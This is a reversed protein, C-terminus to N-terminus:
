IIWCCHQYTGVCNCAAHLSTATHGICQLLRAAPFLRSASVKAITIFSTWLVARSSTTHTSQLLQPAYNIISNSAMGQNIIAICLMLHVARRDPGQLVCYVDRLVGMQVNWFGPKRWHGQTPEATLCSHRGTSSTDEPRRQSKGIQHPLGCANMSARGISPQCAKSLAPTHDHMSWPLSWSTAQSDHEAVLQVVDGHMSEQLLWSASKVSSLTRCRHLDVCQVALGPLSPLVGRGEARVRGGCSACALSVLDAPMTLRGGGGSLRPQKPKPM